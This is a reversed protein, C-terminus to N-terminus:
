KCTKWMLTLQHDKVPTQTVALKRLDGLCKETNQGIMITSYSPNDRNTSQNKVIGTEKWLGQPDDWTSWNYSIAGDGENPMAKKTRLYSVLVQSEKRKEQNEAQSGCNPLNKM